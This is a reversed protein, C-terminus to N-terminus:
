DLVSVVLSDGDQINAAISKGADYHRLVDACVAHFASGVLMLDAGDTSKNLCISLVDREFIMEKSSKVNTKLINTMM